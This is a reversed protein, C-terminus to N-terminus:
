GPRFPQPTRALTGNCRLHLTQRGITVANRFVGGPPVKPRSPDDSWDVTACGSLPHDESCRQRPRSVDRLSVIVRRGGIGPPLRRTATVVQHFGPQGFAHAAPLAFTGTVIV